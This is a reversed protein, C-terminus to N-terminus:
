AFFEDDIEILTAEEPKVGIRNRMMREIDGIM